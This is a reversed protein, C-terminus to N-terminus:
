CIKELDQFHLNVPYWKKTYDYTSTPTCTYSIAHSFSFIHVHLKYTALQYLGKILKLYISGCAIKKREKQLSKLIVM